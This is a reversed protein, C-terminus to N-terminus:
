ARHARRLRSRSITWVVGGVFALLIATGVFWHVGLSTQSIPGYTLSLSSHADQDVFSSPPPLTRHTVHPELGVAWALLAAAIAASTWVLAGKVYVAM